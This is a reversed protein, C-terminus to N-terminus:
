NDRSDIMMFLDYVISKVLISIYVLKSISVKIYM